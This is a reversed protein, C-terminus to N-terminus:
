KKELLALMQSIDTTPAECYYNLCVYATAQGNRSTYYKLYDALRVIEPLNGPPRLLVVKNPIFNQRLASLMAQTDSASPDGAIVVEYSPGVAIDVANMLQSYDSPAGEIQLAFAKVTDEAKAELLPNATMRSLRLLNLIAVSNGSPLDRDKSVKQRVLLEEGDDPTFYFGGDEEDWFQGILQDTLQLAEELYNVDFASEYLEILGWTLFAYDDVNGSLDAENELFRHSLRGGEDRMETLLFDAANQAARTYTPDNFVQGAQALAAIMLGNWDTLIKDDRHLALRAGREGFLQQRAADLRSALEEEPIQLDHALDFLSKSQFLVNDGLPAAQIPDIYNGEETLNYALIFLEADEENLITRIEDATWLYFGGEKGESDADEASYFGGSPATLDRLVYAYIEHAIQAYESKGTVQFAETYVMAMLAQDYLMKEFHPVQWAADTAYRHFGYGLQDYVGGRHMAQLSTEVIDLAHENGTRNWYRLLFLLKHPTPFKPATGFGGNQADFQKELHQYTKDLLAEDLTLEGRRSTDAVQHVKVAVQEAIDLLDDNQEEWAARLQPILDLMGIRGFRNEKPIYTTIYFPKQDYTMIVNLPWGSTGNMSVAINTYIGDIDPREERDVIVNVFTKNMLRAVELDNFSEEKMVHCWHCTSYGISLFIPKNELRAKEFAEAGWPYWDIPDYAHQLLYPSKENILRNSGEKAPDIVDPRRNTSSSITPKAAVSITNVFRGPNGADIEVWIVIVTFIFAGTLLIIGTLKLWKATIPKM